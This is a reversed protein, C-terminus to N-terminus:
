DKLNKFISLLKNNRNRTTHNTRNKSVETTPTTSPTTPPTTSPTTSPKTAQEVQTPKNTLKIRTSTNMIDEQHTVEPSFHSTEYSALSQFINSQTVFRSEPMRLLRVAIPNFGLLPNFPIQIILIAAVTKKSIMEEGLIKNISLLLFSIVCLAAYIPQFVGLRSTIITYKSSRNLIHKKYSTATLVRPSASSSNAKVAVEVYPFASVLTLLLLPVFAIDELTFSGFALIFMSSIAAWVLCAGFINTLSQHKYDIDSYWYNLTSM